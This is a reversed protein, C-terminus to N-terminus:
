DHKSTIEEWFFLGSAGMEGAHIGLASRKIEVNSVLQEIGYRSVKEKITPLIFESMNM